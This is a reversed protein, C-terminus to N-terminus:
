RIGKLRYVYALVEAVARYMELPIFAGIKLSKYMSRALPKNEVVPIRNSRAIEKIKEAIFGAGKAVVRPAPMEKGDYRLAIALHTPNTIVVTAGPVDAMMRKRSMEMQISRIRSKVKPDGETQRSEERIEQKTMRLDKQHQWWQFLYDLGAIAALAVFTYMFIRLAARGVFAWIGMVNMRILLPLAKTEDRILAYALGGLVVIKALAKLLDVSARLSFLRSFGQVPNIKSFKPMLSKGSITFGVQFISAAVGLILAALMVPFVILAFDAMVNIILTQLSDDRLSIQGMGGFYRQMVGAMQQVMWNGSAYFAVIVGLLVLASSIERSVVVQGEERAERQRKPTAQETKEQDNEAM